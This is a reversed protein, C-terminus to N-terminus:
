LLMHRADRSISLAQLLSTIAAHMNVVCGDACLRTNANSDAYNYDFRLAALPHTPFAQSHMVQAFERLSVRMVFPVAAEWLTLPM